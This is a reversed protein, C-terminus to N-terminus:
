IFENCRAYEEIGAVVKNPTSSVNFIMHLYELFRSIHYCVTTNTTQFASIFLFFNNVVRNECSEVDNQQYNLQNM